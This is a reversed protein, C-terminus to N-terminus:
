NESKTQHATCYSKKRPLFEKRGPSALWVGKDTFVGTITLVPQENTLTLGDPLCTAHNRDLFFNFTPYKIDLKVLYSTVDMSGTCSLIGHASSGKIPLGSKDRTLPLRPVERTQDIVILTSGFMDGNGKAEGMNSYIGESCISRAHGFSAFGACLVLTAFCHSGTNKM